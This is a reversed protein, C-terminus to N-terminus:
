LEGRSRYWQFADAIAQRAPLTEGLGLERKAKGTDYYFYCGAKRLLDVSVPLRFLRALWGGPGALSRALRGPLVWRPPRRGAFEAITGLFAPLPLNEGGLIYREGTRGRELAAAGGVRHLDGPGLVVAPNVIVVGLGRAAAQQVELEALYKAHGYRWWEPRYNWTHTENILPPPIGRPPLAPVGLAAVSSTHVVRRVGAELASQLLNRTGVVTAAYMAQPDRPSGLMAAAHFVTEVGEMARRLSPLDTVDGACREVQAPDLGELLALNSTPRHFARVSEGRGALAQCLAAGIFGTSGTVFYM